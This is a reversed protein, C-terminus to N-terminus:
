GDSRGTSLGGLDGPLPADPIVMQHQCANPRGGRLKVFRTALVDFHHLLLATEVVAVGEEDVTITVTSCRDNYSADSLLDRM